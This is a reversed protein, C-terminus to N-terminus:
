QGIRRFVVVTCALIAASFLVTVLLDTLIPTAEFSGYTLIRRISDVAYTVPNVSAITRLWQPMQNLSYLSNSAFLSPTAVLGVVGTYAERTRLLIALAMGLSSIGIVFIAVVAATFSLTFIDSHFQIGLIWALVLFVGVEMYTKAVSSLAKGLVISTRRIPAVLMRSLIGVDAEWKLTIGHGIATVLVTHILIGPLMFQKYDVGSTMGPMKIVSGFLLLWLM